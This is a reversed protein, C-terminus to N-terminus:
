YIKPLLRYTKNMYDSYDGEFKELLLKEEIKIRRIFAITIPIIIVGFSIWNNISIGFGIFSVLSGLYAPHRIVKYVGKKIIKHNEQINVDVTFFKGLSWVAIFRLTMGGLILLLGTYPVIMLKSIPFKSFISILIGLDIGVAITIWIIKMSGKDQDNEHITTSRTFINLLLESIFWISWVVIFTIMKFGSKGM